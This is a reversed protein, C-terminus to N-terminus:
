NWMKLGPEFLASVDQPPADLISMRDASRFDRVWERGALGVRLHAIDDTRVRGQGDPKSTLLARQGAEYQVTTEYTYFIRNQGGQSPQEAINPALEIVQATIYAQGPGCEASAYAIRHAGIILGVAGIWAALRVITM